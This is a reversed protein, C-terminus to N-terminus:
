YIIKLVDKGDEDEYEDGDENVKIWIKFIFLVRFSKNSKFFFSNSYKNYLIM